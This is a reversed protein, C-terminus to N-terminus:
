AALSLFIFFCDTIAVSCNAGACPNLPWEYPSIIVVAICIQKYLDSNEFFSLLINVQSFMM